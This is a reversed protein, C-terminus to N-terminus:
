TDLDTALTANDIAGDAIVAATIVGAQMAGVDSDMRGSVLASPLRSQIDQTDTEVADATTQVADILTKLAGLGDTANDLDTQIGDVVTDVTALNAATAASDTGRMADGAIGTVDDRIARIAEALSVNNAPDASAPYTPIGATGEITNILQKVYQMLTDASTPDGAAAADALAGVVSALAVNGTIRGLYTDIDISDYSTLEADSSM